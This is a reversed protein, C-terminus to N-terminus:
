RSAMDTRLATCYNFKYQKNSMSNQIPFSGSTKLINRKSILALQNLFAPIRRPM